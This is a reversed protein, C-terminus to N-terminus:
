YNIIIFNIDAKFLNSCEFRTCLFIESWIENGSNNSMLGNIDFLCFQGCNLLSVFLRSFILKEFRLSWDLLYKIKIQKNTFLLGIKFINGIQQLSGDRFEQIQVNYRM